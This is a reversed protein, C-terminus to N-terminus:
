FAKLKRYALVAMHLLLWGHRFRSIQTEGYLRETYRIPVDVIKLNLRAAGFILDFDGFPDLQGFYSRNAAIREYHVKTLAKTGCLTDTFRQNLLWSFIVAFARNALFNLPRMARGGMPYVLRSGNIFDGKGAILANYFKPLAEPPMTMDADLILVVEGRAYQFGKRVADGKGEGDQTLVKIDWEPCAAIVRRIEELTGDKSHGEVFLIELDECFRPIRQVVAEVNGRENRCPVVVTASLPGLALNRSSRAVIYNRLCARRIVPLNGIFRNLIRGVGLLRKPILQRWERKIPEFDALYLLGLIDDSSLWNHGPQGPMKAGIAEGLRLIPAWLRNYYAIVVRTERTCLVHLNRLTSECDELLGITDSLVIIDFPGGLETVTVPDEVDGVVFRLHPHKERAIAVMGESLDIGVGYSPRLEALLQGTACGLDLVRLGEPILFRMYRRDDEYYFANAAIWDDRESAVRDAWDRIAAKRETLKLRPPALATEATMAGSARAM